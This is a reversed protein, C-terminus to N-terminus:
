VEFTAISLKANHMLGTAVSLAPLFCSSVMYCEWYDIVWQFTLYGNHKM